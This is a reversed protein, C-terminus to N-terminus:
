GSSSDVELGFTGGTRDKVLEVKIRVGVYSTKVFGDEFSAGSVDPGGVGGADFSRRETVM